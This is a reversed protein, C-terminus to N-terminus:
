ESIVDLFMRALEGHGAPNPHICTLDFWRETDPGRYCAADVDDHHFGHGCFSELFLVLDSGTEVAIRMYEELLYVVLRAQESPDQWSEAFGAVSATPCSAVDGTGDTFEPPNAFVVDNGAPFEDNDKLFRVAAELRAAVAEVDRRIDALPKGNLGDKTFAAIDNGGLTM